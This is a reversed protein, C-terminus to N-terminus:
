LSHFATKGSPLRKTLMRDAAFVVGESSFFSYLVTMGVLLKTFPWPGAWNTLWPRPSSESFRAFILRARLRALRGRVTTETVQASAVRIRLNPGVRGGGDGSADSRGKRASTRFRAPFRGKVSLLCSADCLAGFFHESFK